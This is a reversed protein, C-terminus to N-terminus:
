ILNRILIVFLGLGDLSVYVLSLLAVREVASRIVSEVRQNGKMWIITLAIGALGLGVWLAAWQGFKISEFEWVEYLHILVVSISALLIILTGVPLLQTDSLRPPMILSILFLLGFVILSEFLAFVFVYAIVSVLQIANM